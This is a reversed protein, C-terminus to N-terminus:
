SKRRWEDVSVSTYRYTKVLEHTRALERRIAKTDRLPDVASNLVWITDHDEALRALKADGVWQHNRYLPWANFSSPPYDLAPGRSDPHRYYDVLKVRYPDVLILGDSATGRTQTIGVADRWDEKNARYWRAVGLCSFLVVVVVGAAFLKRPRLQWLGLSVVLALQPLTISFYRIQIIKEAACLALILLTPVAYGLVAIAWPWADDGSRHTRWVRWGAWAALAICGAVSLALVIGGGGAAAAFV